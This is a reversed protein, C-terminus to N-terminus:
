QSLLSNLYVEKEEAELTLKKGFENEMEKMKQTFGGNSIKPVNQIDNYMRMFTNVENRNVKGREYTRTPIDSISAYQEMLEGDGKVFMQKSNAIIPASENEAPGGWPTVHKMYNEAVGPKLSPLDRSYRTNTPRFRMLEEFASDHDFRVTELLSSYKTIKGRELERERVHRKLDNELIDQGTKDEKKETVNRKLYLYSKNLNSFEFNTLGDTNKPDLFVSKRKYAAKIVSLDKCYEPVNLCDYPNLTFDFSISDSNM